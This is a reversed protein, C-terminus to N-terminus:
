DILVHGSVADAARSLPGFGEAGRVHECCARVPPPDIPAAMLIRIVSDRSVWDNRVGTWPRIQLRHRDLGHERELADRASRLLAGAREDLVDEGRNWLQRERQAAADIM